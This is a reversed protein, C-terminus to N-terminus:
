EALTCNRVLVNMTQGDCTGIITVEQGSALTALAELDSDKFYCQVSTLEWEDGTGLTVYAIDLIDTSITDVVGTIALKKDKYQLDANVGNAEYADLLEKATVSIIEEEPEEEQQTPEGTQVPPTTNPDNSSNGSEDEGFVAGLIAILVIIGLIILIVKGAKSKRKQPPAPQQPGPQQHTPQQHTPQQPAPQQPAPQQGPMATGCVPCFKTSAEVPNHCNPCQM